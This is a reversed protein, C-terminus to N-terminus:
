QYTLTQLIKQVPDIDSEFNVKEDYKQNYGQFGVSAADGYQIYLKYPTEQVKIDIFSNGFSQSTYKKAPFSKGGILATTDVIKFDDFGYNPTGGDYIRLRQNSGQLEIVDGGDYPAPVSLIKWDPYYKFSIHHSPSVYEVTPLQNNQPTIQTQSSTTPTPTDTPVNQMTSTPSIQQQNNNQTSPQAQQTGLYYAGGGVVLLLVIIGFIIPLFGKQNSVPTPQIPQPQIPIEPPNVPQVPTNTEM